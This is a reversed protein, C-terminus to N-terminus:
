QSRDFIAFLLGYITCATNFWFIATEVGDAVAQWNM